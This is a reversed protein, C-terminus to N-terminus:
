NVSDSVDQKTNGFLMDGIAMFAISSHPSNELHSLFELRHRNIVTQLRKMEIPEKGSAIKELVEMLKQNILSLKKIPVSIFEVILTSESNELLTYSVQFICFTLIYNLSYM